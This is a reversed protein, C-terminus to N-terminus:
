AFFLELTEKKIGRQLMKSYIAKAIKCGLEEDKILEAIKEKGEKTTTELATVQGEQADIYAMGALEDFSYHDGSELKSFHISEIYDEFMENLESDNDAIWKAM